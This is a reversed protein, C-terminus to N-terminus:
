MVKAVRLLAVYFCSLWCCLGICTEEGERGVSGGNGNMTVGSVWKHCRSMGLSAWLAGSISCTFAVIPEAVGALITAKECATNKKGARKVREVVRM